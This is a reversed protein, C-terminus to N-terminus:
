KIAMDIIGNFFDLVRPVDKAPNSYTYTMLCDVQMYLDGRLFLTLEYPSLGSFSGHVLITMIGESTKISDENFDWDRLPKKTQGTYGVSHM